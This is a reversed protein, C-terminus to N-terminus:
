SVICSSATGEFLKGDFTLGTPTAITDGEQYTGAIDVIQVVLDLDDDNDVDVLSGATGGKGKM